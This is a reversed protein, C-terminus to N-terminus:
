LTSEVLGLLWKLPNREWGMLPIKNWRRQRHIDQADLEIGYRDVANQYLGDYEDTVQISKIQVGMEDNVGTSTRNMNHSGFFSYQSGDAMHVIIGKRHTYVLPSEQNKQFAYISAGEQMLEDIDRLSAYWGLNSVPWFIFEQYADKGNTFIQLKFDRGIGTRRKLEAERLRAKLALKLDEHISLGLTYFKVESAGGLILDSVEQILPDQIQGSCDLMSYIWPVSRCVRRMQDILDHHIFRAQIKESPDVDEASQWPAFVWKLLKAYKRKQKQNLSLSFNAAGKHSEPSNAVSFEPEPLNKSVEEHVVRWLDEFAQLADKVLPGKFILCHDIFNLYIQSLGRGTMLAVDQDIVLLKEHAGAFISWGNLLMSAGGFFVYQIPNQQPQRLLIEEVPDNWHPERWFKRYIKPLYGGRLFRVRVGRQSAQYLEELFPRALIQDGGIDYDIVDITHVANKILKLRLKSEIAGDEIIKFQSSHVDRWPFVGAFGGPALYISTMLLLLLVKFFPNLKIMGHM